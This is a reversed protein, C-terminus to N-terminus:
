SLTLTCSGSALTRVSADPAVIDMTFDIPDNSTYPYIFACVVSQGNSIPNIWATQEPDSGNPIMGDMTLSKGAQHVTERTVFFAQLAESNNNTYRFRVAIVDSGTGDKTVYANLVEVTYGNATVTCAVENQPEAAQPEAAQPESNQAEVAGVVSAQVASKDVTQSVGANNSQEQSPAVKTADYAVVTKVTDEKVADAVPNNSASLAVSESDSKACSGASFAFVLALVLVFIRKM